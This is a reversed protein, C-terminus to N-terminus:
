QKSQDVGAPAVASAAGPSPAAHNDVAETPDEAETHPAEAARKRVRRTSWALAIWGVPLLAWFTVVRFAAVGVALDAQPMGNFGLSAGLLLETAGIGGPLGSGIGLVASAPALFLAQWAGFDGPLMRAVMYFALGHAMWGSAQVLVIAVTQWSWWFGAPLELRTGSLLRAIRNGVGLSVVIVALAALPALLPHLKFALLGALLTVVSTSDLVFVLAEAELCDGLTGRGLRSVLDPRILRGLQAPLLLGAKGSLAVGAGTADFARIGFRELVWMWGVMEIMVDLAAFLVVLPLISFRQNWFSTMATSDGTLFERIGHISVAVLIIFGLIRALRQWRTVPPPDAPEAPASEGFRESLGEARGGTPEDPSSAAEASEPPEDQRVSEQM